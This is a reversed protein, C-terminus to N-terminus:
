FHERVQLFSEKPSKDVTKTQLATAGNKYKQKDYRMQWLKAQLPKRLALHPSSPLDDFRWCQLERALSSVTLGTRQSSVVSSVPPPNSLFRKLNGALARSGAPLM